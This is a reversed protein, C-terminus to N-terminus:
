PIKSSDLEAEADDMQTRFLATAVDSTVESVPNGGRAAALLRLLGESYAELGRGAECMLERREGEHLLEEDALRPGESRQTLIKRIHDYALKVLGFGALEAGVDGLFAGLEKLANKAYRKSAPLSALRLAAALQELSCQAAVIVLHRADDQLLSITIADRTVRAHLDALLQFARGHEATLSPQMQKMWELESKSRSMSWDLLETHTKIAKELARLTAMAVIASLSLDQKMPQSKAEALHAAITRVLDGCALNAEQIADKRPV